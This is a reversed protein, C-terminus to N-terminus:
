IIKGRANNANRVAFYNSQVVVKRGKEGYGPRVYFSTLQLAELKEAIDPAGSEASTAPTVERLTSITGTGSSITGQASPPPPLAAMDQPPQAYPAQPQGAPQAPQFSAAAPNFGSPAPGVERVTPAPSPAVTSPPQGGM